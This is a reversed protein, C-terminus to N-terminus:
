AVFINGRADARGAAFSERELAGEADCCFDLAHCGVPQRRTRNAAAVLGTGVMAIPHGDTGGPRVGRKTLDRNAVRTPTDAPLREGVVGPGGSPLPFMALVLGNEFQQDVLHGDAADDFDRADVGVGEIAAAVKEMALALCKGGVALAGHSIEDDAPEVEAHVPPVIQHVPQNALVFPVDLSRGNCRHVVFVAVAETHAKVEVTERM